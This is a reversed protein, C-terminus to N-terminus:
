MIKQKIIRPLEKSDLSIEETLEFKVAAYAAFEIIKEIPCNKLEEDTDYLADRAIELDYKSHYQDIENDNSNLFLYYYLGIAYSM